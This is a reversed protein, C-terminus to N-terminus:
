IIATIFKTSKDARYCYHWFNVSLWWVINVVSFYYPIGFVISYIWTASILPIVAYWKLGREGYKIFIYVNLAYITSAPIRHTLAISLLNISFTCLAGETQLLHAIPLGLFYLAPCLCNIIDATLISTLLLSIKRNIEGSIILAVVCFFSLLLSPLVLLFLLPFNVSYATSIDIGDDSSNNFSM